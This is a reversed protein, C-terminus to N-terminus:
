GTVDFGAFLGELRGVALGERAAGLKAGVVCVGVIIPWVIAGEM